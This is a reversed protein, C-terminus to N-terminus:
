FRVSISGECVPSLLSNPELTLGPWSSSSFNRVSFSAIFFCICQLTQKEASTPTTKRGQPWKTTQVLQAGLRWDQTMQRLFIVSVIFIKM